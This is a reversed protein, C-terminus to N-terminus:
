EEYFRNPQAQGHGLMLGHKLTNWTYAQANEVATKLNDGLALLAAIRSSLTCGSGHYTGALREWLYETSDNNRTYFSNIVADTDEHTGTILVAKTGHAFLKDAAVNLDTSQALIRAEESNPTILTTLPVLSSLIKKRMHEDVFSRGSTASIVPDLVIPINLKSLESEIVDILEINGIMGIKCSAIEMDELVLSIQQRFFEPEQPLFDIIQNTNQATLSTIVTAAHCGAHAICEIDAQIGAGGSPDHGAIVLVIPKQNNSNIM